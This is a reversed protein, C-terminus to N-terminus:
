RLLDGLKSIGAEVGVRFHQLRVTVADEMVETVPHASVEHARVEEGATDVYLRDINDNVKIEGFVRFCIKVTDAARAPESMQTKGDVQYRVFITKVEIADFLLESRLNGGDGLMYITGKVDSRSSAGVARCGARLLTLTLM